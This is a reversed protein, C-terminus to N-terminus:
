DSFYSPRKLTLYYGFHLLKLYNMFCNLINNEVTSSGDTLSVLNQNKFINKLHKFNCPLFEHYNVITLYFITTKKLQHRHQKNQRYWKAYGGVQLDLSITEILFLPLRLDGFTGIPQIVFLVRDNDKKIAKSAHSNQFSCSLTRKLNIIGISLPTCRGVSFYTTAKQESKLCDRRKM